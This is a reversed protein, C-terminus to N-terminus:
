GVLLSLKLLHQLPLRAQSSPINRAIQECIRRSPACRAGLTARAVQGTRQAVLGASSQSRAKGFAISQRWQSFGIPGEM